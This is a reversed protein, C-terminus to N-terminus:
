RGVSPGPGGTGPGPDRTGPGLGRAGSREPPVEHLRDFMGVAGTDGEIVASGDHDSAEDATTTLSRQFRKPVVSTTRSREKSTWRPSSSPKRPGFPAPLVVVM